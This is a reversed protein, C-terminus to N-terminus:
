FHCIGYHVRGVNGMMKVESIVHIIHEYNLMDSYRYLLSTNLHKALEVAVRIILKSDTNMHYPMNSVGTSRPFRGRKESSWPPDVVILDPKNVQIMGKIVQSVFKRCDMLYFKDPTVEWDHKVIDVGVLEKIRSRVLRYFRGLGYTLDIVILDSRGTFVSDVLYRIIEYSKVGHKFTLLQM